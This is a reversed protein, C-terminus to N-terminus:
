DILLSLHLQHNFRIRRDDVSKTQDAGGGHSQVRVNKVNFCFIYTKATEVTKMKQLFVDQLYLSNLLLIYAEETQM